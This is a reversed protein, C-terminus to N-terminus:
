QHEKKYHERLIDEAFDNTLDRVLTHVHNANNQINDYEILLMPGQIRYYHPLGYTLGGAWAFSLNDIGARTIKDMLTKSFGLEYNKVYVTLLEMFVKQQETTFQKFSLGKPELSVAKRANGTIIEKPAEESFRVIKRQEDTLSNVLTLAIESERKLVQKGRQEDIGVIGPNAGLFSPTSSVVKNAQLVFNFAVHHGEFRWGWLANSSPEGFICFHYNAPDRYHNDPAQKEIIILVKELEVIDIAKEYGAASLSARLLNTAAQRQVLNFDNFTPGKRPTPVFNFNFRENDNLPFLVKARLEPSLTSLFHNAKASLDQAKCMNVALLLLFTPFLYKM